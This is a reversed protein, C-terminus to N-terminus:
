QPNLRAARYDTPSANFRDKFTRSFHSLSAFGWAYAIEGVQRHDHACALALRCQELRRELVYRGLTTAEEAFLKNIYRPSCCMATAVTTPTLMDNLHAEVFGKARYLMSTRHTSISGRDAAEAAASLAIGVMDVVQISLRQAEFGAPEDLQIRGVNLIFESAVRGLARNNRIKVATLHEFSGFRQRFLRRPCRYVLQTFPSGFALSYPRSSDRIAFEGPGLEAERGDQRVWVSGSAVVGVLVVHADGIHIDSGAHEAEHPSADIWDCDLAAMRRCTVAGRFGCPVRTSCRVVNDTM